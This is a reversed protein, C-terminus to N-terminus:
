RRGRTRLREAIVRAAGLLRQTADDLQDSLRRQLDDM